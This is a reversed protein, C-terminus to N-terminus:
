GSSASQYCVAAGANLGVLKIQSSKCDPGASLCFTEVASDTESLMFMSINGGFDLAKLKDVVLHQNIAYPPVQLRASYRLVALGTDSLMFSSTGALM